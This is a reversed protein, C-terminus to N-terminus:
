KGSVGGPFGRYHSYRSDAHGQNGTQTLCGVRKLVERLHLSKETTSEANWRM